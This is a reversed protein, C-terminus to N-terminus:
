LLLSTRGWGRLYSISSIDKKKMPPLSSIITSEKVWFNQFGQVFFLLYAFTGEQFFINLNNSALTSLFKVVKHFYNYLLLKVQAILRAVWSNFLVCIDQSVLVWEIRSIDPGSIANGRDAESLANKGAYVNTTFWKALIDGKRIVNLM